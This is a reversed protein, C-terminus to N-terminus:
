VDLEVAVIVPITNSTEFEPCISVLWDEDSVEIGFLKKSPLEFALPKTFTWIGFVIVLIPLLAKLSTFLKVEIVKGFVTVIIPSVANWLQALKVEKTIGLATVEIPVPAKLKVKKRLTVNSGDLTRLLIPFEAKWLAVLIVAIVKGFVTVLIPFEAKWLQVLKVEKTIGLATVDIPVLAKLPVVRNRLIVNSGDLVIVLMPPEANRLAVPKVEIVNGFVTLLIPFVAKELQVLKLVKANKFWDFKVLAPVFVNVLSGDM